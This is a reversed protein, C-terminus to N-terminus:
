RVVARLRGVAGWVIVGIAGLELVVNLRLSAFSLGLAMDMHHFSAARLLVFLALLLLGRGAMRASASLDQLRLGLWTRLALAGFVLWVMLLGQIIRRDQYWGQARALDRGVETLWTQLDLQKNIGLAVLVLALLLWFRREPLALSRRHCLLCLVAAFVYAGVTVWGAATPDGIGAHWRGDAATAM